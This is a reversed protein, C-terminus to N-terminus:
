TRQACCALRPLRAYAGAVADAYVARDLVMDALLRGLM